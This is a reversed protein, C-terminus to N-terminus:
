EQHALLVNFIYSGSTNVVSTLSLPTGGAFARNDESVIYRRVNGASFTGVLQDLYDVTNALNTIKIRHTPETGNVGMVLWVKKVMFNKPCSFLLKRGATGSAFGSIVTTKNYDM